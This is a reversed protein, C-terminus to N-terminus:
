LKPVKCIWLNPDVIGAQSLPESPLLLLHMQQLVFREDIESIPGALAQQIYCIPFMLQLQFGLPLRPGLM